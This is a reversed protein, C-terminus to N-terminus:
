CLILSYQGGFQSSVFSTYDAQPNAGAQNVPSRHKSFSNESLVFQCRQLSICMALVRDERIRAATRFNQQSCESFRRRPDFGVCVPEFRVACEAAFRRQNTVESNSLHDLNPNSPLRRVPM